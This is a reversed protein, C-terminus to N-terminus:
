FVIVLNGNDDHALFSKYLQNKRWKIVIGAVAAMIDVDAMDSIVGDDGGSRRDRLMSYYM